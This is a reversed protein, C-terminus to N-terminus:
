VCRSTYLLCTCFLIALQGYKLGLVRADDLKIGLVFISPEPPWGGERAVGEGEFFQWKASVEKKLEDQRSANIADDVQVSGPNYATIFAATSVGFKNLLKGMNFYEAGLAPLVMVGEPTFVRYDTYFYAESQKETIKM